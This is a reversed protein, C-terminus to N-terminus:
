NWPPYYNIRSIQRGIRIDRPWCLFTHIIMRGQKRASSQIRAGRVAPNLVYHLLKPLSRNVFSKLNGPGSLLDISDCFLLLCYCMYLVHACYDDPWASWINCSFTLFKKFITLKSRIRYHKTLSSEKRDYFKNKSSM